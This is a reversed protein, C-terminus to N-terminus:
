RFKGQIGLTKQAWGPSRLATRSNGTSILRVLPHSLSDAKLKTCFQTWFWLQQAYGPQTARLSDVSCSSSLVVGLYGPWTFGKRETSWDGLGETSGRCSCGLAPVPWAWSGGSEQVSVYKTSQQAPPHSELHNGQLLIHTEWPQQSLHGGVPHSLAVCM